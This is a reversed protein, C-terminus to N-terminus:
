REVQWCHGPPVTRLSGYYRGDMRIEDDFLSSRSHGPEGSEAARWWRVVLGDGYADVREVTVLRGSPLILRDGERLNEVPVPESRVIYLSM